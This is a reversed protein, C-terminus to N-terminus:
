GPTASPVRRPSLARRFGRRPFLTLPVLFSFFFIGGGSPPPLGGSVLCLGVSEHPEPCCRLTCTRLQCLVTRYEIGYVHDPYVLICYKVLASQQLSV